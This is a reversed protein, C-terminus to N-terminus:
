FVDERKVAFHNIPNLVIRNLTEPPVKGIEM